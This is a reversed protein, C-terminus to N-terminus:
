IFVSQAGGTLPGLASTSNGRRQNEVKVVSSIALAMLIFCVDVVCRSSTLKNALALGPREVDFNILDEQRCSTATLCTFVFFVFTGARALSM